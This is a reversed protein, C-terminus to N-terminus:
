RRRRVGTRSRTGFGQRLSIRFTRPVLTNRQDSSLGERSHYVLGIDYVGVVSTRPNFAYGFGYSFTGSIANVADTPNLEAGDSTREFNDYRTVGISGGYVQHFGTGSGAEFNIGLSYVNVDADCAEPFCTAGPGLDPTNPNFSSYRIPAKVYTGALGVSIGNSFAKELSARYQPSTANGFDWTTYSDGDSVSNASFAGIGVSIWNAPPGPAPQQRRIQADASGALGVVAVLGLAIVRNM